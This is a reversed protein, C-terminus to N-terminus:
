VGLTALISAWIGWIYGLLGNNQMSQPDLNTVEPRDAHGAAHKSRNPKRKPKPRPKENEDLSKRM